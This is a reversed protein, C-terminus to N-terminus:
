LFFFPLWSNRDPIVVRTESSEDNDINNGEHFRNGDPTPVPLMRITTVAVDGENVPKVATKNSTKKTKAAAPKLYKNANGIQKPFLHKPPGFMNEDDYLTRATKM